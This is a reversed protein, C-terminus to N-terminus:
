KEFLIANPFSPPLPPSSKSLLWVGHGNPVGKDGVFRTEEQRKECETEIQEWTLTQNWCHWLNLVPDRRLPLVVQPGGHSILSAMDCERGLSLNPGANSVSDLRQASSLITVRTQTREIERARIATWALTRGMYIVSIVGKTVLAECEQIWHEHTPFCLIYM